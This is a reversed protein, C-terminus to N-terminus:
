KEEQAFQIINQGKLLLKPSGFWNAAVAREKM